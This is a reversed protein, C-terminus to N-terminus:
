GTENATEMTKGSETQSSLPHHCAYARKQETLTLTPDSRSCVESRWRCRPAFSCGAPRNLPSPIEGILKEVKGRRGPDISPVADLLARTYPHDPRAFVEAVPGSEVIRGLYMVVVRDAAYDVTGLNHTIFLYGVGSDAQLSELLKLIQTQVSVDLAATPEDLILLRPKLALARAIAVRQMQGGSLEHPYRNIYEPGLGVQRLLEIVRESLRSGRPRGATVLPEGILARVQMRPNLSSHPNQFVVGISHGPRKLMAGSIPEPEGGDISITGADAPVLGLLTMALTSKGCGSEGVVALTEGAGIEFDVGDVAKLVGQRTRYEKRLGEVSVLPATM